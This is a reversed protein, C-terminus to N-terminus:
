VGWSCRNFHLYIWRGSAGDLLQCSLLILVDRRVVFTFGGVFNSRVVFTIFLINRWVVLPVVVARFYSRVVLSTIFFSYSRIISLIILSSSRRIVPPTLVFNRWVVSSTAPIHIRMARYLHLCLSNVMHCASRGRALWRELGRYPIYQFPNLM